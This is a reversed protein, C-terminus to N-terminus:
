GRCLGLENGMNRLVASQIAEGSDIEDSTAPIAQTPFSHNFVDGTICRGVAKTFIDGVEPRLYALSRLLAERLQARTPTQTSFAQLRAVLDTVTTWLLLLGLSYLDFIKLYRQKDSFSYDPHSYLRTDAFSLELTAL